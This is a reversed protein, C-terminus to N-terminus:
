QIEEVHCPEYHAKVIDGTKFEAFSNSGGLTTITLEGSEGEKVPNGEDDLIETIILEPHHHTRWRFNV